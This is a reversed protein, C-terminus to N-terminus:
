IATPATAAATIAAKGDIENQIRARSECLANVLWEIRKNPATTRTYSAGLIRVIENPRKASFLVVCRVNMRTDDCERERARARDKPKKQTHTNMKGSARHRKPGAETGKGAM